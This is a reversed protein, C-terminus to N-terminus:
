PKNLRFLFFMRRKLDEDKELFRKRQEYEYINIEGNAFRRQLNDIPTNKANKRLVPVFFTFFSTLLIFWFAWWILDMGLFHYTYYM